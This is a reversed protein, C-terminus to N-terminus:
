VRLRPPLMNIPRGLAMQAAEYYQEGLTPHPHITAALDELNAGMEIALVGESILESAHPGVCQVGLVTGTGRDAVLSLFGRGRYGITAGRGSAALPFTATIPDWGQERAEAESLGAIAIEPDSFVVEPIAAPKYVSRQGSLAEAAVIAESSAKHALMPGPTLDGIAAVHRSLRRDQEVVLLGRENPKVGLRDLGLDDTNPTRGVAVVVADTPISTVDDAARVTLREGDYGEARANTLVSM